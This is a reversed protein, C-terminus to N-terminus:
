EDGIWTLFSIYKHQKVLIKTAVYAVNAYM